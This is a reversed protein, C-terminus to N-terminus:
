GSPANDSSVPSCVNYLCPTASCPLPESTPRGNDFPGFEPPQWQYDYANDAYCCPDSRAQSLQCSRQQVYLLGRLRSLGEAAQLPWHSDRRRPQGQCLERRYRRPTALTLTLRRHQPPSQRVSCRRTGRLPRTPLSHLGSTWVMPPFLDQRRSLRLASALSRRCRSMGIPEM